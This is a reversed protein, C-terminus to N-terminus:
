NWARRHRNKYIALAQKYLNCSNSSPRQKGLIIRNIGNCFFYICLNVVYTSIFISIDDKHVECIFGFNVYHKVYTLITERVRNSLSFNALICKTINYCRNINKVFLTNCYLLRRKGGFERAMVFPHSSADASSALMHIKCLKCPFKLVVKKAIFGAVYETAADGIDKSLKVDIIANSLLKHIKYDEKLEENSEPAVLDNCVLDRLQLLSCTYTEECNAGASQTSTVARILLSKFSDRFQGCTPNNNRGRHMRVQGFFNELADQNFNRPLFYRLGKGHLLQALDVFGGLTLILNRLSPPVVREATGERAFHMNKLSQTSQTWFSVHGSAGHVGGKLPKTDPAKLSGGNLSDFCEDFFNLIVSTEQARLPMRFCGTADSCDSFFFNCESEKCKM